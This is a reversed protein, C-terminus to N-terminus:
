CIKFDQINAEPVINILTQFFFYLYLFIFNNIDPNVCLFNKILINLNKKELPFLITSILENKTRFEKILRVLKLISRLYM